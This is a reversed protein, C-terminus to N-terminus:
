AREVHHSFGISHNYAIETAEDPNIIPLRPMYGPYKYSLPLFASAM